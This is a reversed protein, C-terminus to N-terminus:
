GKKLDDIFADLDRIDYLVRRGRKISKLGPIGNNRLTKPSADIYYAAGDVSLLRKRGGTKELAIALKENSEILRQVSEILANIKEEM